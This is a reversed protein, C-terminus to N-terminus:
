IDKITKLRERFPIYYKTPLGNFYYKDKLKIIYKNRIYGECERFYNEVIDGREINPISIFIILYEKKVNNWNYEKILHKM